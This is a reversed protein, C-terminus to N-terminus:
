LLVYIINVCVIPVWEPFYKEDMYLLEPDQLYEDLERVPM